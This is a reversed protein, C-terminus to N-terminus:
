KRHVVDIHRGSDCIYTTGGSTAALYAHYQGPPLANAPIAATFGSVRPANPHVAVVDPREVDLRLSAQLYRDGRQGDFRLWYAPREIGTIFLWGKFTNVEDVELEVPKTRFTTANVMGLNCTSFPKYAGSIYTTM